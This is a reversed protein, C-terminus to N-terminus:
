SSMLEFGRRPFFKTRQSFTPLGKPDLRGVNNVGGHRVNHLQVRPNNSTTSIKLTRSRWSISNYRLTTAPQRWSICNYLNYRCLNYRCLKYRCLNYRCLNYRSCITDPVFQIPFMNYRSCITDPVFQIPFLSYRSGKM